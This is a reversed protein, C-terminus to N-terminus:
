SASAPTALKFSLSARLLEAQRLACPSPHLEATLAGILPTRTTQSGSSPGGKQTAVPPEREVMRARAGALLVTFARDSVLRGPGVCHLWARHWGGLPQAQVPRSQSVSLHRWLVSRPLPLACALSRM